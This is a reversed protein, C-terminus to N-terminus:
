HVECLVNAKISIIFCAEPVGVVQTYICAHLMIFVLRM